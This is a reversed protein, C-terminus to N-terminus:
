MWRRIEAIMGSLALRVRHEDPSPRLAEADQGRLPDAGGLMGDRRGVVQGRVHASVDCVVPINNDQLGLTTAGIGIVKLSAAACVERPPSPRGRGYRDRICM